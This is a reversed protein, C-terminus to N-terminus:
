DLVGEKWMRFAKSSGISIESLKFATKPTNGDLYSRGLFAQVFRSADAGHVSTFPAIFYEINSHASLPKAFKARGTLCCLSILIKKCVAPGQLISLLDEASIWTQGFKIADERGHGLLVVHRTASLYNTWYYKFEDVTRVEHLQVYSDSMLLRCFQLISKALPDLLTIETDFDGIRILSM